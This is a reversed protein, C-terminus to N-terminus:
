KPKRAHKALWADLDARSYRIAGGAGPMKIFAPGKRQARWLELTSAGVNLLKAAQKTTLYEAPPAAPAQAQPQPILAAVRLAIREALADLFDDASGAM